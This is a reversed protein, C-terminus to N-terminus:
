AEPSSFFGCGALPRCVEAQSSRGRPTYYDRELKALLEGVAHQHALIVACGGLGAGTLRAGLVGEIGLSIDVLHDIEPTSVRYGGTPGYQLAAARKGADWADMIRRIEECLFHEPDPLGGAMSIIGPAGILKMLDRIKSSTLRSGSSSYLKEFDM